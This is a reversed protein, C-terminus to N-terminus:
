KSVSFPGFTRGGLSKHVAQGQPYYVEILHNALSVSRHRGQHCNISIIYLNQKEIASIVQQVYRQCQSTAVIERRLEEDMGTLDKLSLHRVDHKRSIICANFNKQSEPPKQKCRRNGWTIIRLPRTATAKVVRESTKGDDNNNDPEERKKKRTM